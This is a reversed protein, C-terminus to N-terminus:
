GCTPPSHHSSSLARITQCHDGGCCNSRAGVVECTGAALPREFNRIEAAVERRESRKCGSRQDPSERGCTKRVVRGREAPNHGNQVAIERETNNSWQEENEQGIKPQTGFSGCRHYMFRRRRM